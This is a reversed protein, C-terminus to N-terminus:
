LIFNFFFLVNGNVDVCNNIVFFFNEIVNICNNIISVNFFIFIGLLM